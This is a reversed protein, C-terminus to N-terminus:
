EATLIKSSHAQRTPEWLSELTAQGDAKMAQRPVIIRGPGQLSDLVAHYLQTDSDFRFSSGESFSAVCPQNHRKAYDFIYKFGLADTATTYKYLDKKDVLNKNESTLNAVLCIDSEWAM